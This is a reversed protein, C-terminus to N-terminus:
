PQWTVNVANTLNFVNATCFGITSDRYWLQYNRVDGALNFGKVSIPIANVAPPNPSPYSSANGAATVIGLRIVTGGICRIGDGFLVGNGGGLQNLAQYYLGPGNPIGSGSITWTDASVSAIGSATLNGGNANLSNACGNGVAGNNACPCALGTGDGFCFYTVPTSCTTGTETVTFTGFINVTTTTSFNGLEILYTAGCTTATSVISNLTSATCASGADDNCTLGAASPCATGSYIAIKTDQTTSTVGGCTSVTLTGTTTATYTFWINKNPASACPATTFGQGSTAATTDFPYTGPGALNIPASCLDNVPPVPVNNLNLTFATGGLGKDSVRIRISQGFTMALSVCSSTAACPAGGCDDNCVLEAGGCASYVSLVTDVGASGCTDLNLTAGSPSTQTYTFWVDRSTAGGPDCSAVGDNTTGVFTGIAAGNATLATAGACNDNAPGIPTASVTFQAWRVDFFGDGVLTVATPNVGDDIKVDYDVGVTDTDGSVMVNPFDMVVGLQFDEDANLDSQNNCTNYDSVAVYYTGPAFSRLIRSQTTGGAPGEDDNHFGAVPNLNADYVYIETDTTTQGITTVTINGTNFLQSVVAPAITTTTLAATYPATTATGGTVRYYLEEQKGFGFWTNARSGAPVFPATTTATQQVSDVTGIVGAAQSLGRITATHTASGTTTLTLQHKYIGLPLATTKIRFQDASTLDTSLATVVTGTTTGTISDNAALTFVGAADAEAKNTNPEIEPFSTQAWAGGALVSLTIAAVHINRLNM